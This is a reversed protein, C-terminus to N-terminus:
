IGSAKGGGRMMSVYQTLENCTVTENHYGRSDIFPPGHDLLALPQSTPFNSLSLPLVPLLLLFLSSYDRTVSYLACGSSTGRIFKLDDIYILSCSTPHQAEPRGSGPYFFMHTQTDTYTDHVVPDGSGLACSGSRTGERPSCQTGRSCFRPILRRMPLMVFSSAPTM